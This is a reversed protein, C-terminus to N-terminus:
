SWLGGRNQNGSESMIELAAVLAFSFDQFDERTGLGLPDNLVVENQDSQHICGIRRWILMYAYKYNSAVM